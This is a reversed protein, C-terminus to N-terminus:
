VMKGDYASGTLDPVDVASAHWEAPYDHEGDDSGPQAGDAETAGAKFIRAAAFGAAACTALFTAPSNRAFQNVQDVIQRSDNHELTDALKQIQQSGQELASKLWRPASDDLDSAAREITSSVSKAQEVAESKRGDIESHLRNVASAGVGKANSVLEDRIGKSNETEPQM